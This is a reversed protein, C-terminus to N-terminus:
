YMYRSFFVSGAKRLAIGKSRLYGKTFVFAGNSPSKKKKKKKKEVLAWVVWGVVFGWVRDGFADLREM